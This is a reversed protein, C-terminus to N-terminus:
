QLCAAITKYSIRVYTHVCIHMGVALLLYVNVYTCMYPLGSFM